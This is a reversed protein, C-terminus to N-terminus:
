ENGDDSQRRRGRQQQQQSRWKAARRQSHKSRCTRQPKADVAGHPHLNNTGEEDVLASAEESSKNMKPPKVSSKDAHSSSFCVKGLLAQRLEERDYHSQSSVSTHHEYDLSTCDERGVKSQNLIMMKANKESAFCQDCM